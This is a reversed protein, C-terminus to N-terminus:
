KVTVKFKLKATGITITITSKGKKKAKIKGSSTVSAIKPKSSRYSAKGYKGVM